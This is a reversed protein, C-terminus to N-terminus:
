GDVPCRIALYALSVNRAFRTTFTQEHGVGGNSKKGRSLNVHYPGDLNGGWVIEPGVSAYM